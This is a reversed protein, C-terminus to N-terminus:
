ENNRINTLVSEIEAQDMHVFVMEYGSEDSDFFYAISDVPEYALYGSIEASQFPTISTTAAPVYTTKLLLFAAAAKKKEPSSFLRATKNSTEMIATIFSRDDLCPNASFITALTSCSSAIEAETTDAQGGLFGDKYTGMVTILYYANSDNDSFVLRVGDPAQLVETRAFLHPIQVTGYLTSSATSTAIPLVLEPKPTLKTAGHDKAQYMALGWFATATLTQWFITILLLLIVTGILAKKIFERM